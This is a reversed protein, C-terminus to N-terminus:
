AEGRAPYTNKVAFDLSTLIETVHPRAFPLTSAAARSFVLITVHASRQDARVVRTGDATNLELHPVSQGPVLAM